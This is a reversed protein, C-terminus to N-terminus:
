ISFYVSTILFTWHHTIIWTFYLEQQQEPNIELHTGPTLFALFESKKKEKLIYNRWKFYALSKYDTNEIKFNYWSLIKWSALANSHQLCVCFDVTIKKKRKKKRLSVDPKSFSHSKQLVIFIEIQTHTYKYKWLSVSICHDESQYLKM